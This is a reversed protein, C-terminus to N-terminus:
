IIRSVCTYPNMLLVRRNTMRSYSVIDATGGIGRSALGDWVALMAGSIDVVRRGAQLFAEESAQQYDLVEEKDAARRLIEFEALFQDDFTENIRACALVATYPINQRVLEKAFIQDAGRALCTAGSTINLDVLTRSISATLWDIDAEPSFHQHGTVGLRM